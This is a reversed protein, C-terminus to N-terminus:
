GGIKKRLSEGKIFMKIDELLIYFSQILILGFGVPLAAHAWVM